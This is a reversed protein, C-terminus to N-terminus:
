LGPRSLGDSLHLHLFTQPAQTLCTPRSRRARHPQFSLLALTCRNRHSSSFHKARHDLSAEYHDSATSHLPFSVHCAEIHTMLHYYTDVTGCCFSICFPITSPRTVQMVMGSNNGHRVGAFANGCKAVKFLPELPLKATHFHVSHSPTGPYACSSSSRHVPAM